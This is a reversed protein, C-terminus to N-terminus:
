HSEPSTRRHLLLLLALVTAHWDSAGRDDRSRGWGGDDNQTVLVTEVFASDVLAGQGALHLFAAAELRLDSVLGTDANVIAANARFVEEVFGDPLAPECGNERAWVWALLVHTLYYGGQGAARQLAKAFVPPLPQRDAYLAYAIILDSPHTVAQLDEPRLPNERDAIRRFVRLTPAQDPNRALLTDFRQLADAFAAIGFRRQMLALWLLAHPESSTDFYAIASDVAAELRDEQRM